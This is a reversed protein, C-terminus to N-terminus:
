LREVALLFSRNMELPRDREPRAQFAGLSQDKAIGGDCAADIVDFLFPRQRYFGFLQERAVTKFRNGAVQEQAASQHAYLQMKRRQFLKERQKAGHQDAGGRVAKLDAITRGDAQEAGQGLLAEDIFVHERLAFFFRPL